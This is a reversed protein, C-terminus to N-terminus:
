HGYVFRRSLYTFIHLRYKNLTTTRTVDRRVSIGDEMMLFTFKAFHEKPPCQSVQPEVLPAM